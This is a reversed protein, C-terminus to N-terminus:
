SGKCRVVGLAGLPVSKFGGCSLFRSDRLAKLNGDALPFNGTKQHKHDM